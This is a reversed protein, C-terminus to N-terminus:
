VAGAPGRGWLPLVRGRVAERRRESQSAQKEEQDKQGQGRFDPISVDLISFSVRSMGLFWVRQLLLLPWSGLPAASLGPGPTKPPTGVHTGVLWGRGGVRWDRRAPCPGGPPCLSGRVPGSGARQRLPEETQQSSRVHALSPSFRCVGHPFDLELCCTLTSPQAHGGWFDCGEWFRVIHGEKPIPGSCTHNLQPSTM